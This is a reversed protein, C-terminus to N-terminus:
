YDSEILTYDVGLETLKDTFNEYGRQILGINRIKSEGDAILAAIVYSFGGRLDPVNIEKGSLKSIGSIIASHEHNQRGFRCRSGLCETRLTISAGMKNLAEIYGFRGEYVTEHVISIGKAQTLMTVFPQQWDTMFGPHVGTEVSVPTLTEKTRFFKIGDDMVEFGGGSRMFHNLFAFLDAHNAGKVMIEGNTAAAVCAWSAVELRDTMAYHKCGTLRDVGVIRIIRDTEVTIHAGMKQLMAILDLIEPEVASNSLETEGKALVATLIVQETAGVSPYDLRIRAGKLQECSISFGNEVETIDAGFAQLAKLHFDVPRKGIRCGGLVPIFAHKFRHLSVGCLLIPIRSKSGYEIAVDRELESVNQCNTSVIGKKRDWSVDGGCAKILDTIIAIDRINAVNSITVDDDTLMSAVINKPVSNKAGRVSITGSIPKGGIISLIGSDSYDSNIM